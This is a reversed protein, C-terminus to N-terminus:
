MNRPKERLIGGRVGQFCDFSISGVSQRRSFCITLSWIPTAKVASECNGKLTSAYTSQGLEPVSISQM